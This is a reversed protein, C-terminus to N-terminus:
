NSFSSCRRAKTSHNASQHYAAPAMSMHLLGVTLDAKAGSDPVYGFDSAWINCVQLTM